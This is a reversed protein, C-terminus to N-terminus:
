STTASFNSPPLGTTTTSPMGRVNIDIPLLRYQIDLEQFIRVMEELLLARREWREGVDQFNMKHTLWLAFTMRNLEEVDKLIIMQDAYWHEKKNAIYSNICGYSIILLMCQFVCYGSCALLLSIKCIYRIMRQKMAAVKDAPTSIHVSFEIADQTDPSRYYNSIPKTSLTSNPYVIKTNDYKLFVTTLINMEEVIM